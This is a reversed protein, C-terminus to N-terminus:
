AAISLGEEGGETQPSGGGPVFAQQEVPGGFAITMAVPLSWPGVLGRQTRWRAFYTAILNADEPEFTQQIPSRTYVGELTALNFDSTANVGVYRYLEIQIAGPPKRTSGPTLEDAYRLQHQGSFMGILDLIPATTPAPIPTPTTDNIHLGLQIKDQDSVGLNVKIQQAYVRCTAKASAKVADKQTVLGTTRTAASQCLVYLEGFQTNLNAIITADSADLGYKGPGCQDVDFLQEALRQIRCRLDSHLRRDTSVTHGGHCGRKKKM